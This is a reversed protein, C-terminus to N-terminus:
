LETYMMCVDYMCDILSKNNMSMSMGVVRMCRMWKRWKSMM